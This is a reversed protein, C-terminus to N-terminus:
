PRTEQEDPDDFAEAPPENPSVDEVRVDVRLGYAGETYRGRAGARPALGGGRWELGEQHGSERRLAMFSQGNTRVMVTAAGDRLLWSSHADTSRALLLRGTLPSLFWWRLFGVPLGRAEEPDSGGRKELKISPVAFRFRERTVWVDLATAGAPGVLLMRAAKDPSVAVAGRAEYQRGTRPDHISVHVREVYPRTPVDRRIAALRARSLTWEQQTVEAATASAPAPARAASCASSTLALSLALALAWRPSLSDM